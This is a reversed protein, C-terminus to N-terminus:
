ITNIPIKVITNDNKIAYVNGINDSTLSKITETTETLINRVTRSVITSPQNMNYSYENIYYNTNDTEYMYIGNANVTLFTCNPTNTPMKYIINNRKLILISEISETYIIVANAEDAIATNKTIGGYYSDSNYFFIEVNVTYENNISVANQNSGDSNCYFLTLIRSVGWRRGTFYFINNKVTFKNTNIILDTSRAFEDIYITNSVNCLSVTNNTTDIKFIELRKTRTTLKTNITILDCFYVFGDDYCIKEINNFTFANYESITNYTSYQSM